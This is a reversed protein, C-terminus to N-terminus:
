KKILTISKETKVDTITETTSGASIVVQKLNKSDIEFTAKIGAALTGITKKDASITATDQTKNEVTLKFPESLTANRAGQTFSPTGFGGAIMSGNTCLMAISLVMLSHKM